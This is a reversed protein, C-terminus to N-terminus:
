DTLIPGVNYDGKVDGVQGTNCLNIWCCIDCGFLCYFEDSVVGDVGLEWELDLDKGIVCDGWCQMYSTTSGM